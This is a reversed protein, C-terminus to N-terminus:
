SFFTRDIYNQLNEFAFAQLESESLNLERKLFSLAKPYCSSNPFEPFFGLETNYKKKLYPIEPLSFFDAGFCLAAKGDLSLLHSIHDIIKKPSDGIFPAFFNFGIIGKRKIIEKVLDDPLNRKLATIHRMNSHSAILPINLSKKELFDVIDYALRDSTHSLDIAIKKQDMWSLLAKGDDKLGVDSGCGGGFRNELDWTLSIYLINKFKSLQKELYRLGEEIKNSEECISNANEFVLAVSVSDNIKNKFKDKPNWLTYKEPHMSLLKSLADIQKKGYEYASPNSYTFVTLAQFFVNGQKMQSYSTRSAPSNYEELRHDVLFSLLDCHLDAIPYTM